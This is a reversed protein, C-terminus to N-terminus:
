VIKSIIKWHETRIFILSSRYSDNVWWVTMLVLHFRIFKRVCILTMLLDTIGNCNKFLINWEFYFLINVKLPTFQTSCLIPSTFTFVLSQTQVQLPAKSVKPPQLQGTGWREQDATGSDLRWGTGELEWEEVCTLRQLEVGIVGDVKM